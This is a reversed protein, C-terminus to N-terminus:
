TEHESDDRLGQANDRLSAERLDHPTEEQFCHRRCVEACGSSMAIRLTSCM